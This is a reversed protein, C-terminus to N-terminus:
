NIITGDETLILKGDKEVELTIHPSNDEGIINRYVKYTYNANSFTIVHNGGSGEFELEGNNM